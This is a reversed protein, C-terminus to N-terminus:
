APNWSLIITGPAGLSIDDASNTTPGSGGGPFGGYLPTGDDGPGSGGGGNPHDAGAQNLGGGAGGSGGDAQGGTQGAGNAQGDGHPGGAGGGGKFVNSTGKGGHHVVDGVSQSPSNGGAARVTVFGEISNSLWSDEGAGPRTAATKPAGPAPSAALPQGVSYNVSAPLSVNAVAAYDGGAGPVGLTGNSGDIDALTGGSGGAGWCQILNDADNWDVPRDLAGNGTLTLTKSYSM